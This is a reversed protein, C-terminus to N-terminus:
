SNEESKSTPHLNNIKDLDERNHKGNTCECAILPQNFRPCSATQCNGPKDSVGKCDGTCIYHM